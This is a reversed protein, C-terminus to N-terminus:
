HEEVEAFMPSREIVFSWHVVTWFTSLAKPLGLTALSDESCLRPLTVGDLLDDDSERWRRKSM